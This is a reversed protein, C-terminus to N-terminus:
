GCINIQLACSSAGGRVCSPPPPHVTQCSGALDLGLPEIIPTPRGLRPLSLLAASLLMTVLALFILWFKRRDAAIM